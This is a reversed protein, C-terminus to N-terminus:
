PGPQGADGGFMLALATGGALVWPKVKDAAETAKTITEAVKNLGDLIGLADRRGEATEATYATRFAAGIAADLHINAQTVGLMNMTVVSGRLLTLLLLLRAKYDDHFAAAGIRETAEDLTELIASIEDQSALRQTDPLGLGILRLERLDSAPLNNAQFAAEPTTMSYGRFRALLEEIKAKHIPKAKIPASAEVFHLSAIVLELFKTYAETQLTNDNVLHPEEPNFLALVLAQGIIASRGGDPSYRGSQLLELLDVLQIVPNTTDM